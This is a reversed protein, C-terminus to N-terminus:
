LDFDRTGTERGHEFLQSFRGATLYEHHSTLSKDRSIKDIIAKLALMESTNFTFRAHGYPLNERYAMKGKGGSLKVRPGQRQM